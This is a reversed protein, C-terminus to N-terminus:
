PHRTLLVNAGWAYVVTGVLFVAFLLDGMQMGTFVLLASATGCAGLLAAAVLLPLFARSGHARAAGGVPVLLFVGVIALVVAVVGCAWYLFRHDHEGTSPTASSTSATATM